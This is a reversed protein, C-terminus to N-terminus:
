NGCLGAPTVTTEKVSASGKKPSINTTQDTQKCQRAKATTNYPVIHTAGILGEQCGSIEGNADLKLVWVDTGGAGFSETEGAIVYGGDETQRISHASDFGAGGYTKQWEIEGDPDLKLVWVDEEGAGYSRTWGGVVYGGDQTQQISHALDFRPGGYTKQWEIEGQPDLKLIWFDADGAGVSHTSSSVM